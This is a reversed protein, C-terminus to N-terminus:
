PDQARFESDLSDLASQVSKETESLIDKCTKLLDRAEEVQAGLDDIGIETNDIRRLIAELSSMADKYKLNRESSM